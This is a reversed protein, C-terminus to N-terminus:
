KQRRKMKFNSVLNSEIVSYQVISYQITNYKMLKNLSAKFENQPSLLDEIQKM